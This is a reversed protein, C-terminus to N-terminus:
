SPAGGRRTARPTAHRTPSVEAEREELTPTFAAYVTAVQYVSNGLQAAIWEFSRGAKRARVALSHRADRLTYNTTVDECAKAHYWSTTYRTVSEWPNAAPLMTGLYARLVPLAWADILVEHRDRKATKTGRLRAVGRELDIDGRQMRTITASVDAGTGHILAFLAAYQPTPAAAVIAQDIELTRWEIRAPNKKPASVDRIPNTTLHGAELCYKVFSRLAMLYARRTGSSVAGKGRTSTLGSLWLKVRAPTLETSLCSTGLFSTARQRYIPVNVPAGGRSAYDKLWANVLTALDVASLRAQLGDLDNAVDAAYLVNLKLQGAFVADLLPWREPTDRLRHVLREINRVIRKDPTGCTRSRWGGSSHPVYVFGTRAKGRFQASM